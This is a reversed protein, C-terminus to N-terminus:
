PHAPERLLIAAHFVVGAHGWLGRPRQLREECAAAVLLDDGYRVLRRPSAAGGVERVVQRGRQALREERGADVGQVTV